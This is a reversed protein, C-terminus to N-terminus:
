GINPKVWVVNGHSVFRSMGGLSDIASRTLRRAEEAIGDPATPTSKYHAISLAPASPTAHLAAGAGALAATKIGALATTKLFTRRHIETM